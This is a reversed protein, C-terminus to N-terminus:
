KNPTYSNSKRLNAFRELPQLNNLSWCKKFQVDEASDFKFLSKPKIHDIHWYSGYNEWTMNEDFQKELYQMLDKLSYGVLKEWPRGAKKYKLAEWVLTSISNNVKNKPVKNRDNLYNRYRQRNGQRWKTTYEVANQRYSDTASYEKIKEPNKVRWRRRYEKFSEKNNKYYEKSYM